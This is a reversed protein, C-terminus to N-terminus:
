PLLTGCEPCRTPTARLDYSCNPCLGCSLRQKERLQKLRRLAYLVLVAYGPLLLNWYPIVVVRYPYLPDGRLLGHEYSVLRSSNGVELLELIEDGWVDWGHGSDPRYEWSHDFNWNRIAAIRLSGGFSFVEYDCGNARYSWNHIRTLTALMAFSIACTLAIALLVLANRRCCRLGNRIVRPM